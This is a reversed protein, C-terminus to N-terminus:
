LYAQIHQHESGISRNGGIERGERYGRVNGIRECNKIM